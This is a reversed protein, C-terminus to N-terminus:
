TPDNGGYETKTPYHHWFSITLAISLIGLLIMIVHATLDSGFWEAYSLENIDEGFTYLQLAVVTNNIVHLISTLIINGTKYYIIGFLIGLPLAYLGQALNLHVLSFALASVVIATEPSAKKRIMEGEIAERFLLEECVPGVLTLALMGWINHSMAISTQLMTDPLEIKETLISMSMAGFIGGALALTAPRWPISRIDDTTVFRINRLLTRCALVALIDTTLIIISITSTPILDVSPLTPATDNLCHHLATNFEPSVLMGICFLLITGIGQVVLFVTLTLIAPSLKRWNM